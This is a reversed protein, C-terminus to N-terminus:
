AKNQSGSKVISWMPNIKEVWGYLSAVIFLALLFGLLGLSPYRTISYVIGALVANVVGLGFLIRVTSFGAHHLRQYAHLSHAASLTEGKLLRRLLTATADFCFVGYIILWLMMPIGYRQDGIFAFAAVAFGLCYSGADGMFVKAKPWNWLLFGSVVCVLAGSALALGRVGQDWFLWTGMGFVSMAEIGSIGDLGDMFNYANISWVLLFLVIAPALLGLYVPTYSWLRLASCHGLLAIFLGAVLCQIILRKVASLSDRDDVFGLISVLCGAPLLLLLDELSLYHQLKLFLLSFSWLLVFVIGAGRPITAQHMSRENPIDLWQYRIAYDRYFYVGASSLLFLSIGM